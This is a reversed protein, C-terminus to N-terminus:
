DREAENGDSGPSMITARVTGGRDVGSGGLCVRQVRPICPASQPWDGDLHGSEIGLQPVLAKVDIVGLAPKFCAELIAKHRQKWRESFNRCGRWLQYSLIILFYGVLALDISSFIGHHLLLPLAIALLISTFGVNIALSM